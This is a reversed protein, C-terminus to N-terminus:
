RSKKGKGTVEILEVKHFSTPSSYSGIGLTNFNRMQLIAHNGLEEYTSTKYEVILKGDLFGKLGDKRVQVLSTHIKGNTLVAAMQVSHPYGPDVVWAGRITGFGIFTNGGAGMAWSFSHRNKSMFQFVDGAGEDRTFVIRFDYEAPPEYPIEIRACQTGDSALKGGAMTWTGDIADKDTDILPLLNIAGAPAPEAAAAPGGLTELRKEVKLKNLAALGPLAIQYLERIHAQMRGKRLPSKEREALDWWGDGIAAQDAPKLPGAQEKAALAKLTSDSGKLLFKLGVDWNGKVFCLFQGVENNAGPDDPNKAFSPLVGKVARFLTQTESIEKGRATVQTVLVVEGSKKAHTLAAVAAKDAADYQDAAALEDALQLLARTLLGAEEPTRAAKGAALLPLSKTQLPDVDFHAAMSEVTQLIARLDGQQVAIDQAERLLVWLSAPDDGSRSANDLLARLLALRDAPAKKAYEEKFLDKIVKEAERQKAADPVAALVKTEKAGDAPAQMQKRLQHVARLREAAVKQKEPTGIEQLVLYNIRAQELKFGADAGSKAEELLQDARQQIKELDPSQQVLLCILFVRLTTM